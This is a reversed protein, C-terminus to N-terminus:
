APPLGRRRKKRDRDHIFETLAAKLEASRAPDDDAGSVIEHLEAATDADIGNLLNMADIRANDGYRLRGAVRDPLADILARRQVPDRFAPCHVLADVARTLLGKGAVTARPASIDERGAGRIRVYSLPHEGAVALVEARAAACFEEEDPLGPLGEARQGLLTLLLDSFVGTRRAPDNAALRGPGAARLEAQQHALLRRGDPFADTPLEHAFGLEEEFTECADIAWLQRHFGPVADTRYHKMAADLDLNRKDRVTADATFLRVHDDRDLVGHGGWWIWLDQGDTVAPLEEVLAARLTEHDAPRYPVPPTEGPLPALHLRLNAVPVGAGHLLHYLRVADHAPGPLDWTRGAAYSDIGVILAHVRSPDVPRAKM